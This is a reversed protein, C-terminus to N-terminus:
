SAVEGVVAGFEAPHVNRLHAALQRADKYTDAKGTARNVCGKVGCRFWRGTIGVKQNRPQAKILGADWLAVAIAPSAYNHSGRTYAM